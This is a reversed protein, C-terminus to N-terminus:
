KHETITCQKMKQVYSTIAMVGCNSGAPCLLRVSQTLSLM